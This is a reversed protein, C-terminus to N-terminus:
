PGGLDLGRLHSTVAPASDVTYCSSRCGSCTPSRAGRSAATRAARVADEYRARARGLGDRADALERLSEGSFMDMVVPDSVDVALVDREEIGRELEELTRRRIEMLEPDDM